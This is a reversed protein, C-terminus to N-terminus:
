VRSELERLYKASEEPPTTNIYFGTGWEFGAVHALKPFIELHWHYHELHTERCPATHILFNYSPRDLARRLRGLTDRLVRALAELGETELEEFSAQHRKPLIWTEFSFRPAFPAIAVFGGDERVLRRGDRLEQEVIDCFVCREKLRFHQLSGDLEEQVVRPIIPTAILQAHGHELSAGAASGHNKFVLIYRFRLDNKLDRMRERFALLVREIEEVSLESLEKSHDPSEIIVEHAGIGNMRDYIGEGRRELEGEIQLAPFKNPVVRTTWGPGNAPSGPPRFALIEPTTYSEHGPCFPCVDPGTPAASGRADFDRPRFRREAAIIVWRGVVPDRRLEPM